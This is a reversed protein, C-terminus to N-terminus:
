QVPLELPAVRESDTAAGLPLAPMYRAPRSV